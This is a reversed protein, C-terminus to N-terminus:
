QQRLETNLGMELLVTNVVSRILAPTISRLGSALIIQSARNTVELAKKHSIDTERLLANHIRDSDFPGLTEQSISSILLSADTPSKYSTSKDIVRIM